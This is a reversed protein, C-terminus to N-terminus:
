NPITDKAIELFPKIWEEAVRGTEFEPRFCEDWDFKKLVSQFLNFDANKYDSMIRQYAQQKKKKFSLTASINCKCKNYVECSVM